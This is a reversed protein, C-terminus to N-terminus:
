LNPTQPAFRKMWLTAGGPVSMNLDRSLDAASAFNGRMIYTARLLTLSLDPRGLPERYRKLVNWLGQRTIRNEPTHLQRNEHGRIHIRTFLPLLDDWKESYALVRGAPESPLVTVRAPKGRFVVKAEEGIRVVDGATMERVQTVLAGTNLTLAVMALDRPEIQTLEYLRVIQDDTLSNIQHLAGRRETFGPLVIEDRPILGEAVMWNGFRGISAAKRAQTAPSLGCNALDTFYQGLVEPTFWPQDDDPSTRNMFHKLDGAYCSQTNPSLGLFSRSRYYKELIGGQSSASETAM